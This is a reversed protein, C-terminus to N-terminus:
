SAAFAASHAAAGDCNGYLIADAIARGTPYYAGTSVLQRLTRIKAQRNEQFLPSFSVGVTRKGNATFPFVYSSSKGLNVIM